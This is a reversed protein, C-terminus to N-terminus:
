MKFLWIINSYLIYIAWASSLVIGVIKHKENRIALSVVILSFAYLCNLGIHSYKWVAEDSYSILKEIVLRVLTSGVGFFIFILIYLDSQKRGDDTQSNLNRILKAHCNKCIFSTPENETHCNPCTTNRNKPDPGYENIGKTGDTLALVLNYIPVISYWGSKGVDHMRKITQIIMFISLALALLLFLIMASQDRTTSMAMRLGLNVIFIILWRTWFTSRRIRGKSSMMSEEMPMSHSFEGESSPETKITADLNFSPCEGSFDAVKGTLSCIMGQTVDMKRNTCKKCFALQEDRTM